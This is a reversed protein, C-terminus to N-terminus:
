RTTGPSPTRTTFLVRLRPLLGNEVLLGANDPHQALQHLPYLVSYPRFLIGAWQKRQIALELLDVMRRVGHQYRATAAPSRVSGGHLVGEKDGTLNAMAMAASAHTAAPRDGDGCYEELVRGLAPLVKGAVLAPRAAACRSLSNLAGVAIHRADMDDRTALATLARVMGSCRIIHLVAEECFAACNNIIRAADEQTRGAGPQLLTVLRKLLGPCGSIALCIQTEQFALESLASCVHYRTIEPVEPHLLASLALIAGERLMQRKNGLHQANSVHALGFLREAAVSAQDNRGSLQSIYQSIEPNHVHSSDDVDQAALELNTRSSSPVLTHPSHVGMYDSSGGLARDARRVFFGFCGVM